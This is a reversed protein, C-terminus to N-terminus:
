EGDKEAEIEERAEDVFTKKVKPEHKDESKVISYMGYCLVFLIGVYVIMPIVWLVLYFLVAFISIVTAPITVAFTGIIMPILLPLLVTVVLSVGFLVAFLKILGKSNMDLVEKKM